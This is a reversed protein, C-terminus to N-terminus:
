YDKTFRFRVLAAPAGFGDRWTIKGEAVLALDVVLPVQAVMAHAPVIVSLTRYEKPELHPNSTTSLCTRFARAGHFELM